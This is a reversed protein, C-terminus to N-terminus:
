RWYFSLRWCAAVVFGLDFALTLSVDEFNYRPWWGKHIQKYNSPYNKNGLVFIRCYGMKVFVRTYPAICLRQVMTTKAADHKAVFDPNHKIPAIKNDNYHENLLRMNLYKSPNNRSFGAELLREICPAIHTQIKIAVKTYTIDCRLMRNRTWKKIFPPISISLFTRWSHTIDEYFICRNLSPNINKNTLSVVQNLM